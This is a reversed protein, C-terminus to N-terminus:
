ISKVSSKNEGKRNINIVSILTRNLGFSGYRTKTVDSAYMTNLFTLFVHLKKLKSGIKHSIIIYSFPSSDSM